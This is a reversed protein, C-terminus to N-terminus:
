GLAARQSAYHIRNRGARKAEYLAADAEAYLTDFSSRSAGWSVGLSVTVLRDPLSNLVSANLSAHIYGAVVAAQGMSTGPLLITFEEGGVRGVSGSEPVSNEIRKILESIVADGTPHGFQDNIAKFHDIDLLILSADDQHLASGIQNIIASRNYVGTLPDHTAEYELRLALQRLQENLLTLEREARDSRSILRWSERMMRQYHGSLTLLAARCTEADLHERAAIDRAQELIANEHTFLEDISMM